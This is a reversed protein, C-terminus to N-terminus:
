VNKNFRMDKQYKAQQEEVNDQISDMNEWEKFISHLAVCRISVAM